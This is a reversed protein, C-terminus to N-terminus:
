REVGHEAYAASARQRAAAATRIRRALRDPVHADLDTVAVFRWDTLEGDVFRIEARDREPLVGGDFIFLLKDGEGAAPAWDVVLHEGVAPSLGLEERVERVCAARPSEGAEVFGGPIEWGDKYGPKVLLVKGAEDFFLVGSAVRPRSIGTPESPSTM